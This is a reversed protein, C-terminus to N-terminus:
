LVWYINKVSVNFRDGDKFGILKASVPLKLKALAFAQHAYFQCRDPWAVSFVFGSATRTLKREVYHGSINRCTIFLRPTAQVRVLDLKIYAWLRRLAKKQLCAPAKALLTTIRKRLQTRAEQKRVALSKFGKPTVYARNVGCAISAALCRSIGYKKALDSVSELSTAHELMFAKAISESIVSNKHNDGISNRLGTRIAHRTNEAATIWELNVARNDLTNGNKHNVQLYKHNRPLGICAIAVLRHAQFLVKRGYIHTSVIAYGKGGVRSSVHDGVTIVGSQAVSIKGSRILEAARLDKEHIQQYQHSKNVRSGSLPLEKLITVSAM